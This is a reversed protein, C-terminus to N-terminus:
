NPAVLNGLIKRYGLSVIGPVPEFDIEPFRTYGRREYMAIATKMIPTSHLIIGGVGTARRECEEILLNAVGVNRFELPVALLRMEPFDNKILGTNPPCLLVSGKTTDLERVVLINEISSALLTQRINNSFLEWFGPPSHKEYESYAALTIAVVASRETPLAEEIVLM